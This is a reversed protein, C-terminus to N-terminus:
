SHGAFSALRSRRKERAHKLPQVTSDVSEPQMGRVELKDVTSHPANNKGFLDVVMREPRAPDRIARKIM